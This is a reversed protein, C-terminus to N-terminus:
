STSPSLVLGEDLLRCTSIQGMKEDNVNTRSNPLYDVEPL